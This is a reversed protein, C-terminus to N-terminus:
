EDVEEEEDEDPVGPVADFICSQLHKLAEGGVQPSGSWVRKSSTWLQDFAEEIAELRQEASVASM